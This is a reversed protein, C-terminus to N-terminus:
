LGRNSAADHRELVARVTDVVEQPRMTVDQWTFRLVTWGHLIAERDRQRDRDFSDILGHWRRSDWEIGLRSDPYAADFRKLQNWPFPYELTPDPLGGDRIVSLGARELGSANREPGEGREELIRRLATAGPKGRRAVQDRVRHLDDVSLVQGAILRDVIKRIHQESLVSSLDVVTRPITTVPLDDLRQVHEVSLDHNRHVTVGPFVHTARTHVSVVARGRAVFPVDHFEAASEHSVVAGPLAASAARVLDHADTMEILRYVSRFVRQWEGREVRYQVSRASLGCEIAQHLTIVGGQRAALRM